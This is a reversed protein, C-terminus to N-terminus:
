SLSDGATRYTYLYIKTVAVVSPDGAERERLTVGEALSFALGGLRADAMLAGFAGVVLPDASAYGAELGTALATVRIEVTRHKAGSVNVTEPATENGTEVVLAPLARAELAGVLDHYVPVVAGGVTLGTLRGYVAATIAEAASTTM